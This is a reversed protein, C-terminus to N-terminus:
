CEYTLSYFCVALEYQGYRLMRALEQESHPMAEFRVSKGSIDGAQHFDSGVTMGLGHEEAAQLALDNHSNHRPNGNYVEIGHLYATDALFCKPRYPHAQVIYLNEAEATKYFEPLEMMYLWPHNFLFEESFGYVLFDNEDHPFRIEMGLFVRFGTGEAEKVAAGWGRLFDRCIVSWEKEEPGGWERKSFHDTVVVGAYGAEIYKRVGEEAAVKGCHSSQATHFHLELDYM